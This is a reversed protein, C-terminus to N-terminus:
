MNLTGETIRESMIRNFEQSGSAIDKDAMEKIFADLTGAKASGKENGKGRGGEAKKIYPTTFSNIVDNLGMPSMLHDKMVQGNKKIVVNGDDSLEVQHQSKFLTLLDDQGITTGEKPLADLIKNNISREQGERKFRDQLETFESEKTQLQGRLSELDKNLESIKANPEIQADALAKEKIANVLNDMTKGQFELGNENRANKIAIELSATSAEKKVNGIYTDFDEKSDYVVRDENLEVSVSEESEIANKLSEESIGAAKAVAGLNEIAM